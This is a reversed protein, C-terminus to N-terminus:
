EEIRNYDGVSLNRAKGDYVSHSGFMSGTINAKRIVSENQIITNDIRSDAIDTKKGISVYPGIVSNTIKVDKGIYCPPIVISNILRVSDDVLKDDRIYELYRKNTNVTANKNGCDLWEEVEGPYFKVGQRKMAELVRTLQYEGSDKLNNDIIHEIEKRLHEGDKFYYIGIIALDSVFTKPKEIFERIVNDEGLQVVGFASPDEVKQVWIIGDQEVDLQFDAKFLTDAFAVIVNGVLAQKACYIAHATGLAEEQYFIKGVGGVSKAVTLLHAEVEEGFHKGIVFGITDIDGGCVKAIDEVLRQVIPKGAIPVLPKPVTLTHPRMRKGMGAMPVIINM